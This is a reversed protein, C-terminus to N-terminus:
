VSQALRSVTGTEGGPYLHTYVVAILAEVTTAVTRFFQMKGTINIEVQLVKHLM